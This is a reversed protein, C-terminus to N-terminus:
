PLIAGGRPVFEGQVNVTAPMSKHDLVFVLYKDGFSFIFYVIETIESRSKRGL